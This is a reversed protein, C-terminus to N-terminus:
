ILLPTASIFTYKAPVKFITSPEPMDQSNFIDVYNKFYEILDQAKIPEGNILKPSMRSSDFLKPILTLLGKKFDDSLDSIKLDTFIRNFFEKDNQYYM